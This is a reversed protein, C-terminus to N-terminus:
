GPVHEDVDAPLRDVDSSLAASPRRDIELIEEGVVVVMKHDRVSLRMDPLDKSVNKLLSQIPV